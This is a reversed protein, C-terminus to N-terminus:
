IKEGSRLNRFFKNRRDNKIGAKARALAKGPKNVDRLKVGAEATRWYPALYKITVTDSISFTSDKDFNNFWRNYTSAIGIAYDDGKSKIGGFEKGLEHWKEHDDLLDFAPGDGIGNVQIRLNSALYGSYQPTEEIGSHYAKIIEDQLIGKVKEDRIFDKATGIQKLLAPMNFHFNSM